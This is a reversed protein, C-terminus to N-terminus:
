LEIGLCITRVSVIDPNKRRVDAEIAPRAAECQAHDPATVSTTLGLGSALKAVILMVEILTM